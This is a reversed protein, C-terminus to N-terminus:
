ARAELWRSAAGIALERLQDDVISEIAEGVFAQILLSEADKEPLGRARLYFLLSEDLAGTTAGHGCAVDDAFIELEPKNDAEAEDSLLLARTMMKADTQQAPQRVNIRGQFVSHGRDDLVARFVERSACHPVDHNMVLTTDAHQKGNLLNVGNTEVRSYEGAVNIVAQYRSVLTGTTMGFTNVHAHAGVDILSSTINFAERSDEVLRVHDLRARDGVAIILSDHVQYATAGEAAIYSEIVTASADNGLTLMSRTFMAAPAGGSAIHVIHIPQTLKAGDAIAIILGDTMMAANLAIMPNDSDLGFLKAHLAADDGELADRLSRLSLQPDLDGFACLSPALMGDVLVLRRVGDIDHLEQAAAARALADADPAAALPLVERMLARLDTYKWDEIRRHPLGIREFAAYAEARAQAVSGAGPLRSRALAFAGEGAAEVRDTKAVAVNM